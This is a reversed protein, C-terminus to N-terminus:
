PVIEAEITELKQALDDLTQAALGTIGHWLVIEVPGDADDLADVPCLSPDVSAADGNGDSTEEGDSGGSCSAAVLAFAALAAALLRM